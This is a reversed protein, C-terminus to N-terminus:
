RRLTPGSGLAVAVYVAGFTAGYLLAPPPALGEVLPQGALKLRAEFGAWERAFDLAPQTSKRLREQAAQELYVSAVEEWDPVEEIAVADVGIQAEWGLALWAETKAYSISVGVHRDRIRERVEPGKASEVWLV